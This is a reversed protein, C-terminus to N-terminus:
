EHSLKVLREYVKHPMKRAHPTQSLWATVTRISRGTVQSLGERDLNLRHMLVRVDDPDVQYKM